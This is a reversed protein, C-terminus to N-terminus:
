EWSDDGLPLKIVRPNTASSETIQIQEGLYDVAKVGSFDAPIQAVFAVYSREQAEDADIYEYLNRNLIQHQKILVAYPQHYGTTGFELGRAVVKSQQRYRWINLWPYDATTWLYGLLMGRAPNCATVWGLKDDDVFVFSSVDSGDKGSDRFYRLDAEEDAFKMKPWRDAATTSEPVPGSQSFGHSANSDVITSDDLFPPAISPHQVMNYVRGLRGQNSVTETVVCVPSNSQFRITREVRLGAIPLACTMKGTSITRSGRTDAVNDLVSVTWQVQSAEGHFPMEKAQESKSPAGWRDLCLFHGRPRPKSNDNELPASDWNLPNPSSNANLRFDILGGGAASFVVTSMEGRYSLKDVHSEIGVQASSSTCFSLPLLAGFLPLAFSWRLIRSNLM